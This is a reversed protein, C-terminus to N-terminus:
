LETKAAKAKAISEAYFTNAFPGAEHLFDEVAMGDDHLHLPLQEVVLPMFHLLLHVNSRIREFNADSDLFEKGLEWNFSEDRDSSKCLSRTDYKRRNCTFYYLGYPLLFICSGIMALIALCISALCLLFMQLVM